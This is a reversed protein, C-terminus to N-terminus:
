EFPYNFVADLPSRRPRSVIDPDPPTEQICISLLLHGPIFVSGIGRDVRKSVQQEEFSLRVEEIADKLVVNVDRDVCVFKGILTRGSNTEVRVWQGLVQKWIDENESM